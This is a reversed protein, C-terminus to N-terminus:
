PGAAIDARVTDLLADSHETIQEIHIRNEVELLTPIYLAVLLLVAARASHAYVLTPEYRGDAETIRWLPLGTKQAGPTQFAASHPALLFLATAQDRLAPNTARTIHTQRHPFAARAPETPHDLHIRGNFAGSQHLSWPAPSAIELHAQGPLSAMIPATDLHACIAKMQAGVRDWAAECARQSATLALTHHHSAPTARGHFELHQASAQAHATLHLHLRPWHVGTHQAQEMWAHTAATAAGTAASLADFLAPIPSM